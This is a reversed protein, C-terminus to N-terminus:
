HVIFSPSGNVQGGTVGAAIASNLADVSADGTPPPGSGGGSSPYIVALAPNIFTNYQGRLFNTMGGSSNIAAQLALAGAFGDGQTIATWVPGNQRIVIIQYGVGGAQPRRRSCTM